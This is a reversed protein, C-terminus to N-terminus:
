SQFSKVAEDRTNFIQCIRHLRILEFTTRVRPTVGCLRLDGGISTLNKLCSLIAGCGSSDIFQVRSLDFVMRPNSQLLPAMQRKFDEANSADFEEFHLTVVAVNQITETTLQMSTEKHSQMPRKKILRILQHGSADTAYTVEDVLERILYVGFGGFRSGDFLPPAVSAPDFDSGQHAFTISVQAPDAEVTLEIPRDAEGRYSHRLINTAAEQVALELRGLVEETADRGWARRCVRVIFARMSALHRVDSLFARTERLM